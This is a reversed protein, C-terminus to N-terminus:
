ERRRWLLSCAVAVAITFLAVSALDGALRGPVDCAHTTDLAWATPVVPPLDLPLTLLACASLGLVAIARNRVIPQSFLAALATGGVASRRGALQVARPGALV